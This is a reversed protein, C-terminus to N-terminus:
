SAEDIGFPWFTDDAGYQGGPVYEDKGGVDVFTGWSNYGAPQDFARRPDSDTGPPEYYGRGAIEPRPGKAVMVYSDDGGLDTFLGYAAGPGGWGNDMVFAGYPSDSEGYYVDNGGTDVMIGVGGYSATGYACNLLPDIWPNTGVELTYYNDNGGDDYLMGLGGFAGFGFAYYDVTQARDISRYVDNGGGLELEIGVGGYFGTGNTYIGEFGGGTLGHGTSYWFDNGEGDISTGSGGAGGFGQGLDWISNGQTSNVDLTYTDDGLVDIQLGNGGYGFGQGGGDFYYVGPQFASTAGRTMLSRYSDNGGVDVLIGLGGPGGAGQVAAPPGDYNYSDNSTGHQGDGLDAVVSLALGNCQMWPGGTGTDPLTLPCAGGASNLYTDDGQPDVLLVPDPLLGSRAYTDDSTDGLVVLGEPDEFIPGTAQTAGAGGRATASARQAFYSATSARFAGLARLISTQEAAMRDREALTVLPTHPDLGAAFRATAARAVPLQAAYANAVRAVLAAFPARLQAPIRAAASAIRARVGPTVALGAMADIAAVSTTIDPVQAAAAARAPAVAALLGRGADIWSAPTRGLAPRENLLWNARQQPTQGAPPAPLTFTDGYPAFALPVSSHSRLDARPATARAPAVAATAALSVVLVLKSIRSEVILTGRRPRSKVPRRQPDTNARQARLGERGRAM